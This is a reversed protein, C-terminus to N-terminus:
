GSPDNLRDAWAARLRSWHDERSPVSILEWDPLLLGILKGGYVCGGDIGWTLGDRVGEAYGHHGFVVKRPGSYHEYWRPSGYRATLYLEGAETGTLVEPNQDECGPGSEFGWHVVVLDGLDLCRPLGRMWCLARGYLEPGCQWRTILASRSQHGQLHKWEHNGLVVQTRPRALLLELVQPTEPGRNVVDGVSVLRDDPGLRARELLERLEAHCGHIDGVILTKMDAGAQV